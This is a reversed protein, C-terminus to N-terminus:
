PHSEQLRTSTESSISGGYEFILCRLWWSHETSEERDCVFVLNKFAIFIERVYSNQLTSIEQSKIGIIHFNVLLESFCVAKMKLILFYALCCASHETGGGVCVCV